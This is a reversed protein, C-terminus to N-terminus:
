VTKYFSHAFLLILISSLDRNIPPKLYIVDDVFNCLNQVSTESHSFFFLLTSILFVITTVHNVFIARSFRAYRRKTRLTQSCRGGGITVVRCHDDDDDHRHLLYLIRYFVRGSALPIALM